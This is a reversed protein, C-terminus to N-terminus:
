NKLYELLDSVENISMQNHLGEPMASLEHAKISKITQRLKIEEAGALNKITISTPGENTIIGSLSKGSTLMVTWLEFADAIARNPQLIDLLISAKNRNKISALDPGIATGNQGSVQHCNGCNLKFVKAGQVKNGNLKLSPSYEKWVEDANLQSGKLVSRALQRIEINSSNLLSVKQGWAL